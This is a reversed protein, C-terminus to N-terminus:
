VGSGTFRPVAPDELVVAPWEVLAHLFEKVKKKVVDVPLVCWLLPGDRKARERRRGDVRQALPLQIHSHGQVPLERFELEEPPLEWTEKLAAEYPTM